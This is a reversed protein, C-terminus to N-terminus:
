AADRRASPPGRGIIERRARRIGSCGQLRGAEREVLPLLNGSLAARVEPDPSVSALFGPTGVREAMVARANELAVITNEFTRQEAPIVGVASIASWFEQRANEYHALAETKTWVSPFTGASVAPRGVEAPGTVIDQANLFGPLAAALFLWAIM